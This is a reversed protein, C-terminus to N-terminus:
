AGAALSRRGERGDAAPVKSQVMQRAGGSLGAAGAHPRVVRCGPPTERGDRRPVQPSRAAHRLARLRRRGAFLEGGPLWPGGHGALSKEMDAIMKDLRGIAAPFAPNETGKQLQRFNALWGPRAKEMTEYVEPKYQHHFAISQSVTATAPFIAADIFKTFGRMRARAKADAPKLPRAPFADDIYECIVTSETVVFDDHVLTPVYGNPNLALYEPRKQDGARLNLHKDEYALQKEALCLRVKQACVSMDNHYLTLPM